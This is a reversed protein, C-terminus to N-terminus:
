YRITGLSLVPVFEEYFNTSVELAAKEGFSRKSAETMRHVNRKDDKPGHFSEQMKEKQLIEGRHGAPSQSTKRKEALRTQERPTPHLPTDTFPFHRHWGQRDWEPLVHRAGVRVQGAM